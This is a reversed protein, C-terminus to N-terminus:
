TRRGHLSAAGEAQHLCQEKRGEAALRQVEADPRVGEMGFSAVLHGRTRRDVREVYTMESLKKRM